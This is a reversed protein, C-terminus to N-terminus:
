SQLSNGDFKIFKLYGDENKNNSKISKIAENAKQENRCALIVYYGAKYLYEATVYGIGSNAGTVIAVKQGQNLSINYEVLSNLYEKPNKHAGNFKNAVTLVTEAVSLLYMNVHTPLWFSKIWKFAKQVGQTSSVRPEPVQLNSM